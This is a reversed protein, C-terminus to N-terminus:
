DDITFSYLLEIKSENVKTYELTFTLSDGDKIIDGDNLGNFKAAVYGGDFDTVKLNHITFNKGVATLKFTEVLVNGLDHSESSEELCDTNPYCFYPFDVKEEAADAKFLQLYEDTIVKLSYASSNIDDIRATITVSQESKKIATALGGTANITVITDDSSTWTVKDTIVVVDGNSNTGEARLQLTEGVNFNNKEASIDVATYVSKLVTITLSKPVGKYEVSLTSNGEAVAKILGSDNVTLASKNSSSWNSDDTIDQTINLDFNGTATLQKENGAYIKDIEPTIDISNLPVNIVEYAIDESFIAQGDSLKDRTEYSITVNAEINSTTILGSEVTAITEDSSSWILSSNLNKTSGDSYHGLVDISMNTDTVLYKEDNPTYSLRELVKFSDDQSCAQNFLLIISLIVIKFLSKM